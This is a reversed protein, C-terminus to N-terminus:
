AQSAIAVSKFFLLKVLELLNM